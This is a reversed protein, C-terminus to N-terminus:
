RGLGMRQKIYIIMNPKDYLTKFIGQEIVLFFEFELENCCIYPCIVHSHQLRLFFNSCFSCSHFPKPCLYPHTLMSIKIEWPFSFCPSKSVKQCNVSFPGVQLIEVCAFPNSSSSWNSEKQKQEITKGNYFYFFIGM